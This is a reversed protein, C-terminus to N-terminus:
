CASCACCAFPYVPHQPARMRTASQNDQMGLADRRGQGDLGRATDAGIYRYWGEVHGHQLATLRHYADALPQATSTVVDPRDLLAAPM